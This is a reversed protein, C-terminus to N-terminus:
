LKFIKNTTNAWQITIDGGSSIIPLGLASGSDILAILASTNPTGTDQFIAVYNWSLNAPVTPFTVDDGDAIGNTATTNDITQPTLSGTHSQLNLGAFEHTSLDPVYSSSVLVAKITDTTWNIQSATGLFKERGKDFLAGAM